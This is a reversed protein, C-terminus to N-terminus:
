ARCAETVKACVVDCAEACLLHWHKVAAVRQKEALQYILKLEGGEGMLAPATQCRCAFFVCSYFKQDAATAIFVGRACSM